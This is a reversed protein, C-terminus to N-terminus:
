PRGIRNIHITRPGTTVKVLSSRTSDIVGPPVRKTASSDAASATLTADNAASKRETPGVKRIPIIVTTRKQTPPTDCGTDDRGGSISPVTNDANNLPTNLSSACSESLVDTETSQSAHKAAELQGLLRSREILWQAREQELKLECGLLRKELTSMEEMKTELTSNKYRTAKIEMEMETRQQELKALLQQRDMERSQEIHTLQQQLINALDCAEKRVKDVAESVAAAESGSSTSASTSILPKRVVKPPGGFKEFKNRFESVKPAPGKADDSAMASKAKEELVAKELKWESERLKIKNELELRKTEEAKL